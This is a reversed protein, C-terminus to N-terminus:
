KTTDVGVNGQVIGGSRAANDLANFGRDFLKSGKWSSPAGALDWASILKDDGAKGKDHHIRDAYVRDIDQAHIM